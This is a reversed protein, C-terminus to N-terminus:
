RESAALFALIKDAVEKPKQVPVDHISDEMWEVHVQTNLTQIKQVSQEKLALYGREEPDSTEKRVPMVLVPCRIKPFTTETHWDWMARLIKMHNEFTLHPYIKEDEDIEFNAMFVRVAAESPHWEAQPDNFYGMLLSLPSGALKPPALKESISEWTAGPIGSLQYFGGDVLVLASPANPGIPHHAAYDVAVSGGFSHGAVVPHEIGMQDIFGALDSDFHQFDYGDDPKDTLGHGRQDLAYLSLGKDVLYPAVLEWIHANSALGHLLVVPRGAGDRNWYLYHFRMGNIFAYSSISEM